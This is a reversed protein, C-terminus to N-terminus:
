VKVDTRLSHIQFIWIDLSLCPGIIAFPCWETQTWPMNKKLGIKVDV